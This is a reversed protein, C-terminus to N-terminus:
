KTNQATPKLLKLGHEERDNHILELPLYSIPCVQLRAVWKHFAGATPVRSLSTSVITKGFRFDSRRLRYHGSHSGSREVWSLSPASESVEGVHLGHCRLLFSWKTWQPFNADRHRRTVDYDALLAICAAHWRRAPHAPSVTVVTPPTHVSLTLSVDSSTM